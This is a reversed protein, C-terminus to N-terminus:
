ADVEETEADEWSALLWSPLQEWRSVAARARPYFEPAEGLTRIVLVDPGATEACAVFDPDTELSERSACWVPILYAPQDRMWMPAATGDRFASMTHGVLMEQFSLVPMDQAWKPANQPVRSEVNTEVFPRGTRLLLPWQEADIKPFTLIEGNTHPTTGVYALWTPSDQTGSGKRQNEGFALYIAQNDAATRFGSPVVLQKKENIVFCGAALCRPLHVALHKTLVPHGEGWEEDPLLDALMQIKAPPIYAFRHLAEVSYKGNQLAEFDSPRM